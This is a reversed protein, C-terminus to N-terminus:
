QLSTMHAKVTASTYGTISKYEDPNIFANKRGTLIKHTYSQHSVDYVIKDIPSNFVYHMAITAEVM